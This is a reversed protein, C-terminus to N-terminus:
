EDQTCQGTVVDFEKGSEKGTVVEFEPLDM